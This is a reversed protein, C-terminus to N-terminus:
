LNGPALAKAEFKVQNIPVRMVIVPVDNPHFVEIDVGGVTYIEAGNIWVKYHRGLSSDRTITFTVPENEENLSSSHSLRM